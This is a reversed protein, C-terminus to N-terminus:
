LPKSTVAGALGPNDRHTHNVLSIGSVVVDGSGGNINVTSGEVNVSSAKINANTGADIYTNTTKIVLSGDPHFEMFAGSKHHIHIREGSPTDDIEITHGSTTQIVKNHPYEAAYPDSPAGSVNVNKTLTNTGRALQNTSRGGQSNEELKPLSGVVLPLQSNAGDLFIGFVLSDIQIGLNNGLGNTGGQTIPIVVQAWPLDADPIDTKNESHIGYIRVRIRGLEEPDIIDVVTGLFWRTRDGYYDIYKKPIM